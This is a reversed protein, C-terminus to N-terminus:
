GGIQSMARPTQSAHGMDMHHRGPKAAIGRAVAQVLDEGSLLRAKLDKLMQRM